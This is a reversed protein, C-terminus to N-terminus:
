KEQIEKYKMYEGDGPNPLVIGLGLAWREIKQMYFCFEAKSLKSTSKLQRDINTKGFMFGNIYGLFKDKLLIHLFDKDLNVKVLENADETSTVIQYGKKNFYDCILKLWSWYLKNASLSRSGGYEEVKVAPIAGKKKISSITNSVYSLASTIQDEREILYFKGQV